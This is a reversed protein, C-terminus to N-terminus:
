ESLHSSIQNTFFKSKFCENAEEKLSDAKEIDIDITTPEMPNHLFYFKIYYLFLPFLFSLTFYDRFFIPFKDKKEEERSTKGSSTDILQCNRSLSLFNTTQMLVGNGYKFNLWCNAQNCYQM